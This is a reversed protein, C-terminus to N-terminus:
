GILKNLFEAGDMDYARKIEAILEQELLVMDSPFVIKPYSTNTDNSQITHYWNLLVKQIIGEKTMRNEGLIDPM